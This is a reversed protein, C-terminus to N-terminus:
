SVAESPGEATAARVVKPLNTPYAIRADDLAIRVFELRDQEWETLNSQNGVRRRRGRKGRRGKAYAACLEGVVWRLAESAPRGRSGLAAHEAVADRAAAHLESLAREVAYVDLGRTVTLDDRMYGDLNGLANALRAADDRLATLVRRYDAPRPAGEVNARLPEFAGLALEVSLLADAAKGRHKRDQPDVGLRETLEDRARKSLTHPLVNFTPSAV